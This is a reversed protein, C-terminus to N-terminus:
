AHASSWGAPWGGIPPTESRHPATSRRRPSIKRRLWALVYYVSYGFESGTFGQNEVAKAPQAAPTLVVLAVVAAAASLRDRLVAWAKRGAPTSAQEERVQIMVAPDLKALHVLAELHEDTIKGGKRWVSVSSRTIGLRKSLANDSPLSCTERAKDLVKNLTNMDFKAQCYNDFKM